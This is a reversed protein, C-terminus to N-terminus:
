VGRDRGRVNPHLLEERIQSPLRVPPIRRDSARPVRLGRRRTPQPRLRPRSLRRRRRIAVVPPVIMQEAVPVALRAVRVRVRRLRSLGRDRRRRRPHSARHIEQRRRGPQEVAEAAAVDLDRRAELQGFADGRDRIVDEPARRGRAPVLSARPRNSPFVVRSPRRSRRASEGPHVLRQSARDVVDDSALDFSAVAAEVRARRALLAVVDVFHSFKLSPTAAIRAVSRRRALASAFARTSARLAFSFFCRALSASRIIRASAFFGSGGTGRARTTNWRADCVSNECRRRGADVCVTYMWGDSISDNSFLGGHPPPAPPLLRQCTRFWTAATAGLGVNFGVTARTETPTPDSAGGDFDGRRTFNEGSTKWSPPPADSSAASLSATISGIRSAAGNDPNSSRHATAILVYRTDRSARRRANTRFSQPALSPRNSPASSHTRTSTWGDASPPM